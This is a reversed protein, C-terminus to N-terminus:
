KKKKSYIKEIALNRKEVCVTCTKEEFDRGVYYGLFFFDSADIDKGDKRKFVITTSDNNRLYEVDCIMAFGEGLSTEKLALTILDILHNQSNLRYEKM